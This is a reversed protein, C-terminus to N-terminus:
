RAARAGLALAAPLAVVAAAVCTVESISMAAGFSNVAQNPSTYLALYGIITTLSCLTVAGGTERIAAAAADRAGAGEREDLYRRMVNVGYDVGNGFTIPLAVFNLFNVKMGAAAMVGVMWVIGVLHAALTLSRARMSRFALLILLVTAAFSLAVAKPGDARIASVLDAMVPVTGAVAVPSGDRNTPARAAATWEVLYRGDTQSRGPANEVYVLSGRTGDREIFPRAIPEPLDEPGLERLHEAPIEEDIRRQTAEDAHPRMALLHERIARLVPLKRAQDAPLLHQVDRIAGFLDPRARASAELQARVHEADEPSAALIALASGHTAQYVSRGIRANTRQLPGDPRLSQLNRFDYEIPDAAAWRQIVVAGLVTLVAALALVLRPAGLAVRSLARGYLSARAPSASAAALPRWRDWLAALAPTLAISSVWCLVMGVGGIIGFDRFARFETVALSAYAIAAAGAAALTAGWTSLHAARLADEPADGARRREFYRALWMIHSNVGNGIVISSLFASSANLSGVALAAFAFTLAVPPVLGLPLIVLSRPRRFFVLVALMVLLITIASAWAAARALSEQEEHMELVAGGYEVRLDPAYRTPEMAEVVRRAAAILAQVREHAGGHIDTRLFVSVSRGDPHRYLGDPYRNVLYNDREAQGRHAELQEEISAPEDDLLVCFPNARCAEYSRREELADRARVLDDYPLYLHRNERVFDGYQAVTYDVSLVGEDSLAALRPALEEVFRRRADVDDSWVCLALSQPAAFRARIAALDRVARTEQPLLAILDGDLTLSLALPAAGLTVLAAAVVFAWPRATQWRALATLARTM